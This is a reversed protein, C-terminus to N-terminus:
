PSERGGGNGGNYDYSLHLQTKVIILLPKNELYIIRIYAGCMVVLMGHKRQVWMFRFKAKCASGAACLWGDQHGFSHNGGADPNSFGAETAPICLSLQQGLLRDGSPAHVDVSTTPEQCCGWPFARNAKALLAQFPSTNQCKLGLMCGSSHAGRGIKQGGM